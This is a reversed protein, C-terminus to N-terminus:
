IVMDSGVDIKCDGEVPLADGAAQSDSSCTNIIQTFVDGRSYGAYKGAYGPILIRVGKDFVLKVDGYGIEIVSNVSSTNGAEPTVTVSSNEKITPVNIKKNWGAGEQAEINTGSQINVIIPDNSITTDVNLTIEPLIASNPFDDGPGAGLDITADTIDEPINVLVNTENIVSINKNEETVTRVTAPVTTTTTTTVPTTTTTTTTPPVTTTATTTTTVPPETTTTTTPPLTTTTTTTVPPEPATTTTTTTTPVTTTTTTPPETTTTTTTTPIEITTTTTTPPEPETTTTTTTPVTTTTTTTPPVTTTTTTPVTTTTTPPAENVNVTRTVVIANNGATDSVNYSVIHTNSTSTNIPLGTTTIESTLNGDINDTATAGADTYSDGVNINIVSSGNLTIVPKENDIKYTSFHNVGVTFTYCETEGVGCAGVYTGVTPIVSSRDIINGADNFAVIKSTIDASTDSGTFGLEDLNYFKITASVGKLSVSNTTGSFDLGIVGAGSADMKAGLNQLFTKTEENSLDLASNFTIKGMKKGGISKEFYLNSFNSINSTTVDNLNNAVGNTALTNSVEDFATAIHDSDVTVTVVYDQTTSDSATVTYTVPNTFDQAVGSLPSVSSGTTTITPILNTVNTGFPVSATITHNGGNIIGSVAPTLGNFSFDTITKLPNLSITGNIFSSTIIDSADSMEKTGIFGLNTDTTSSSVVTFNLTLITGNDIDLATSNFWNVVIPNSGSNSVQLTGKGSIANLTVGTYTLLSPDYGVSFDMGAVRSSFFSANIPVSINSGVSAAQSGITLTPTTVVTALAVFPSSSVFITLALLCSAITKFSKLSNNKM